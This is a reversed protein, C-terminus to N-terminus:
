EETKPRDPEPIKAIVESFRGNVEKRVGAVDRQISRATLLSTITPVVAASIVVMLDGTASKTVALAVVGAVTSIVIAAVPWLPNGGRNDEKEAM